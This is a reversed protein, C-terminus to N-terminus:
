CKRPDGEAHGFRVPGFRVPGFRVPGFRVPGFRVPGFRVPGFRSIIKIKLLTRGLDHASYRTSSLFTDKRLCVKKCLLRSSDTLSFQSSDSELGVSEIRPITGTWKKSCIMKISNM